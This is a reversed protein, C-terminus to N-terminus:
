IGENNMYQVIQTLDNLKSPNLKEKKVFSVLNSNEQSFLTYFQKKNKIHILENSSLQIFLIEKERKFKPETDDVYSSTSEVADVFSVKLSSLLRVKGDEILKYFGSKEFYERKGLYLIETDGIDIKAVQQLENLVFFDKGQEFQLNNKYLNLRVYIDKRAKGNNFYLDSKQFEDNYYPSGSVGEYGLNVKNRDAKNAGMDYQVFDSFNANTGQQANVVGATLMYGFIWLAKILGKKNM